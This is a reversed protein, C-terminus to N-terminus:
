KPDFVCFFFPRARPLERVELIVRLVDKVAALEFDEKLTLIKM